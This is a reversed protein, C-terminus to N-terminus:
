IILVLRVGLVLVLDLAFVLLVAGFVVDGNGRECAVLAQRMEALLWNFLYYVNNQNLSGLRLQELIDLQRALVFCAQDRKQWNQM